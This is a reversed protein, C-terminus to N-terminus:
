GVDPRLLRRSGDLDPKRTIFHILGGTANRGFLTGQPGRLAEVRELDYMAVSGAALPLVYFEDVYVVSPSETGDQFDNLGVGRIALSVNMGPGGVADFMQVNPMHATLDSTTRMGLARVASGALATVSIGVDQLNQERRQATVVVEELVEAATDDGFGVGIIAVITLVDRLANARGQRRNM